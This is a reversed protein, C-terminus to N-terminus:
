GFFGGREVRYHARKKKQMKKQLPRMPATSTSKSEVYVHETRRTLPNYRTAEFDCGTKRRKVEYGQMTYSMEDLRQKFLGAERNDALQDRKRQKKSKRRGSIDFDFLPTV